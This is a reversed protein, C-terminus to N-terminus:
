YNQELVEDLMGLIGKGMADAVGTLYAFAALVEPDEDLEACDAVARTIGPIWDSHQEAEAGGCADYLILFRERVEKALYRERATENKRPADATRDAMNMEEEAM